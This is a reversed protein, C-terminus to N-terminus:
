CHVIKKRFYWNSCSLSSHSPQYPFGSCISMDFLQCKSM